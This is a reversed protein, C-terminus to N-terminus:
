GVVLSAGLSNTITRMSTFLIRDSCINSGGDHVGTCNTWGDVGAQIMGTARVQNTGSTTFVPGGSDGQIAALGNNVQHGEITCVNGFGMGDNFLVCMREVQIGCRVGSNGGSTCVSDGTSVDSFGIVTKKYGAANNWAGDFMWYFGATTMVRAAGDPSNVLGDGYSTSSNNRARYDHQWCHRATTTRRVGNLWIGFGTSCSTGNGAIMYGGANFPANDNSRTAFPTIVGAAQLTVDVGLEASAAKAFALDAAPGTTASSRTQGGRVVIGDINPDLAVISNIKYDKFAGRGASDAATSAADLLKARSFKRQKITVTIGRRKGEALIAHQLENAPGHWLLTTSLRASDNVSEVYGSDEIGPQTIIWSKLDMLLDQRADPAALFNSSDAPPVTSPPLKDDAM